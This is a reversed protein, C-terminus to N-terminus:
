IGFHDRLWRKIERKMEDTILPIKDIGKRGLDRLKAKIIIPAITLWNYLYFAHFLLSNALEFGWEIIDNSFDGSPILSM